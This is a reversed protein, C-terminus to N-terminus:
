RNEPWGGVGIVAEVAQVVKLLSARSEPTLTPDKTIKRMTRLKFLVQQWADPTLHALAALLEWRTPDSGNVLDVFEVELELRGADEETVQGDTVADVAQDLPTKDDSM